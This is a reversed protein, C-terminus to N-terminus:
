GFIQGANKKFIKSGNKLEGVMFFFNLIKCECDEEDSNDPCDGVGDCVQISEFCKSNDKCAFEEENDCKLSSTLSSFHRIRSIPRPRIRSSNKIRVVRIDDKSKCLVFNIEFYFCILVIFILVKLLHYM